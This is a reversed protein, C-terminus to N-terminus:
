AASEVEANDNASIGDHGGDEGIFNVEPEDGGDDDWDYKCGCSCAGAQWVQVKVMSECSPCEVHYFM